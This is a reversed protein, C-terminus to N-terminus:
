KVTPFSKEITKEVRLGVSYDTTTATIDYYVPTTIVTLSDFSSSRGDFDTKIVNEQLRMTITITKKAANDNKNRGCGGGHMPGNETAATVCGNGRM